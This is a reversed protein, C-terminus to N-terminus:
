EPIAPALVDDVHKAQGEFEFAGIELEATPEQLQLAPNVPGSPPTQEAQTAPLYLALTPLTAHVSQPITVYETVTAALADEAQKVQGAM